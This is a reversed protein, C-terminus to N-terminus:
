ESDTQSGDRSNWAGAPYSRLVNNWQFYPYNGHQSFQPIWHRINHCGYGIVSDHKNKSQDATLNPLLVMVLFLSVCAIFKKM